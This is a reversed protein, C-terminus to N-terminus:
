CLRGRHPSAQENEADTVVSYGISDVKSRTAPTLLSISPNGYGTTNAQLVYVKAGAIARAGGGNVVGQVPKLAAETPGTVM